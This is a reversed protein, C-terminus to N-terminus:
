SKSDESKPPAPPVYTGGPAAQTQRPKLWAAALIAAGMVLEFGAGVWGRIGPDGDISAGLLRGACAGLWLLAVLTLQARHATPDMVALLVFVGMVLFLGGYTARVEGYVANAAHSPDVSFGLIHAMVLQPSLLAFLGLALIITGTAAVIARSNM